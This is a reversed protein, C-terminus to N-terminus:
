QTSPTPQCLQEVLEFLFSEPTSKAWARALETAGASALTEVIAALAQENKAISHGKSVSLGMLLIQSFLGQNKFVTFEIPEPGADLMDGTINTIRGQTAKFGFSALFVVLEAYSSFCADDRKAPNTKCYVLLPLAARPVRIRTM